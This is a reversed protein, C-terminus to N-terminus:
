GYMGVYKVGAPTCRRPGESPHFLLVTHKVWSRNKRLRNPGFQFLHRNAVRVIGKAIQRAM